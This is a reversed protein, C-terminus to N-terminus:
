WLTNAVSTRDLCSFCTSATAISCAFAAGALRAAAAAGTARARLGLV